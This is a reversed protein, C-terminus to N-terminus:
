DNKFGVFYVGDPDAPSWPAALNQNVHSVDALLVALFGGVAAHDLCQPQQRPVDAIVPHVGGDRRLLNADGRVCVVSWAIPFATTPGHVCDRRLGEVGRRSERSLRGALLGVRGVLRYGRSM